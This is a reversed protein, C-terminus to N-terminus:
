LIRHEGTDRLADRRANEGVIWDRLLRNTEGVVRVLADVNRNTQEASRSMVDVTEVLGKVQDRCGMCPDPPNSKGNGNKKKAEVLKNIVQALILALSVIGGVVTADVLNTALAALTISLM